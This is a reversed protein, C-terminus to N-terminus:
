DGQVTRWGERDTYVFDADPLDDPTTVNTLVMDTRDGFPTLMAVGAVRHTEADLYVRLSEVSGDAELPTMKLAIAGPVPSKAETDMAVRFQKRPDASGTLFGYYTQLMESVTRFVTAKKDEEDLIWLTTGDSLWQTKTPAIFDWRMKGPAEMAITGTQVVPEFYSMGTTTQTFSASIAKMGKHAEAMKTLTADVTLAAPKADDALSLGPLLALALGLLLARM